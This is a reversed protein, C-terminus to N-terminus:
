KKPFLRALLEMFDDTAYGALFCFIIPIELRPPSAQPIQVQSVTQNILTQNAVNVNVFVSPVTQNLTQNLSFQGQTINVLGADLLLFAIFGFVFGVFPLVAYWIRKYKSIVYDQKYDYVVGVLIQVCAGILAVFPAWLPVVGLIWFSKINEYFFILAFSAVILIIATLIPVLGWVSVYYEIWQRKDFKNTIENLGKKVDIVHKEAETFKKDTFEQIASKLDCIVADFDSSSVSYISLKGIGKKAAILKGPPCGDVSINVETKEDNLTLSLSNEDAYVKITKDDNTKEIKAKEVWDICLNEKLFKILRGSDNGPVENWRFLYKKYFDYGRKEAVSIQNELSRIQVQLEEKKWVYDNNTDDQKEAAKVPQGATDGAKEEVM